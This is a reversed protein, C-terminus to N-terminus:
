IDISSNTSSFLASSDALCSRVGTVKSVNTFHFFLFSRSFASAALFSAEFFFSLRLDPWVDPSDPLSNNEYLGLIAFSSTLTSINEKILSLHHPQLKPFAEPSLM